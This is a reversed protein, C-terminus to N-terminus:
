RPLRAAPAAYRLDVEITIADRARVAGFLVRPPEIGFDALSLPVESHVSMSSDALATVLSHLSVSRESGAVRLTGVLDLDSAGQPAPEDRVEFRGSIVRAGSDSDAKLAHNMAREMAGNRCRLGAVPVRITVGRVDARAMSREDARDAVLVLAVIDTSACHWSAGITTSGRITLSSGPLSRIERVTPAQARAVVPFALGLLGSLLARRITNGSSTFRAPSQRDCLPM